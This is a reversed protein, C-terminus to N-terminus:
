QSLAQASVVEIEFVLLSNAPIPGVAEASYGLEPPITIIRKGGVRMGVLGLEWGPILQGTGYIFSFPAGNNVLKSDQILTGDGLRLVYNVAVTMGPAIVQGSGVAVEDIKVGQAQVGNSLNNVRVAAANGGADNNRAVASKFSNSVTQGFMTYGVFIVAVVVALWEKKSLSKM